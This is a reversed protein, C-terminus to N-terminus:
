VFDKNQKIKGPPFFVEGRRVNEAGSSFFLIAKKNIKPAALGRRSAGAKAEGFYRVAGFKDVGFQGM